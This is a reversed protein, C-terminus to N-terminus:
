VTESGTSPPPLPDEYPAKHPRRALLGFNEPFKTTTAWLHDGFLFPKFPAMGPLPLPEIRTDPRPEFFFPISFREQGIPKVGHETAKVRGGTWRSLLGGFNIILTDDRAPIDQWHGLSDRAQLGPAGRCTALITLLGSDIHAGRSQKLKDTLPLNDRSIYRLLRLTSIGDRFADRFIFQDIGLGRSISDLLVEGIAEMTLFYKAATAHFGPIDSEDPLVSKEYLLDDTGDPTGRVIDPGMEFGERSLTAGSHLPFWGRYLHQNEAAFNQKWLTRQKDVPLSFIRILSEKAQKNIASLDPIGHITMFGTETAAHFILRDAIDRKRSPPSFLPSVDVEPIQLM